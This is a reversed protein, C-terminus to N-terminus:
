KIEKKNMIIKKAQEAVGRWGDRANTLAKIVDCADVDGSKKLRDLTKKIFDENMSRVTVDM